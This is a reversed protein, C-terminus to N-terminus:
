QLVERERFYRASGPHLPIVTAPALEPDIERAVTLTDELRPLAEFLAKTMGYVLEEDLDTRCLLVSHVGVTSVPETQGPYTGAPIIVPKYFPAVGRLRFAAERDVPLLRIGAEHGAFSAMVSDLPYGALHMVADIRGARLAATAEDLTLPILPLDTHALGYTAQLLGAFGITAFRPRPEADTAASVDAAAPRTRSTVVGAVRKGRLQPVTTIPSDATVIFQIASAYIVAVASLNRHPVPRLTTGVNVAAYIIDSLALGVEMTGTDLALLNASMSTTPIAEAHVSTGFSPSLDAIAQGLAYYLGARDGTAIRVTTPPPAAPVGACSGGTWAGLVILLLPM